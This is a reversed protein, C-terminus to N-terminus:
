ARLLAESDVIEVTVDMLVGRSEDSAEYVVGVVVMAIDGVVGDDPSVGRELMDFVGLFTRRMGFRPRLMSVVREL